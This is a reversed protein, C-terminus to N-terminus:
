LWFGVGKGDEHGAGARGADDDYRGDDDGAEEFDQLSKALMAADAHDPSAGLVKKIDDKSGIQIVNKTYTVSILALEHALDEDVICAINNEFEKALAWYYEARKNKFLYNAEADPSEDASEAVNVANVPMDDDADMLIDTVGGGVGIDDVNVPPHVSVEEGGKEKYTWVLAKQDAQIRVAVGTVISRGETWAVEYFIWQKGPVERRRICVTRDSGKRAVDLGISTCRGKDLGSEVVEKGRDLAAQICSLPILKDEGMDPFDGLVRAIYLPHTKKWKRERRVCWELTTMKPYIIRKNRVNPSDYCSIHVQYYDSSPKFCKAFDSLPDIPNGVLLEFTEAGTLIAEKAEMVERNLGCAEDGFFFTAEGHLGVLRHEPQDTAFGDVFWDEGLDLRTDLLKGGLPEKGQRARWVEADAYIQRIRSWLLNKVQRFTPATTYGSALWVYSLYLAAIAMIHTKSVGQGARVAVRRHKVLATLIEREKSWLPLTGGRWSVPPCDRHWEDVPIGLEYKVFHLPRERYTRNLAADAALVDETVASVGFDAARFDKPLDPADVYVPDAIINLRKIRELPMPDPRKLRPPAGRRFVPHAGADGGATVSRGIGIDLVEGMGAKFGRVTNGSLYKDNNVKWGDVVVCHEGALATGWVVREFM